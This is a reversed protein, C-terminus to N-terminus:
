LLRLSKVKLTKTEGTQFNLNPALYVNEVNDLNLKVAQSAEPAWSPQKFDTVKLQMVSWKETAPIVHQYHAYSNDGKGGFDSQSFKVSVDSESQYTIEVIKVSTLPAGTACILEAYPWGKDEEKKALTFEVEIQNNKILPDTSKFSSGITDTNATWQAIELMNKNKVVTSEAYSLPSFITTLLLSSTLIATNVKTYNM